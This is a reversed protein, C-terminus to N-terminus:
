IFDWGFTDCEECFEEYTMVKAKDGWEARIEVLYSQYRDKKYEESVPEM